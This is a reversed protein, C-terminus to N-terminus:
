AYTLTARDDWVNVFNLGSGNAFTITTLTNGGAVVEVIKKIRWKPLDTDTGKEAQGVYTTTTGGSVNEEIIEKYGNFDDKYIILAM